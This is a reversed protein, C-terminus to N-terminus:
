LLIAFPNQRLEALREDSPNRNPGIVGPYYKNLWGTFANAFNIGFKSEIAAAKEATERHEESKRPFCLSRGPSQATNMSSEIRKADQDGSTQMKQWTDTKKFDSVFGDANKVSHSDMIQQSKTIAAQIEEKSKSSGAAKLEAEVKSEM